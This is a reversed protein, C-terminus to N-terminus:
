WNEETVQKGTKYINILEGNLKVETTKAGFWFGNAEKYKCPIIEEGDKNVFGWGKKSRVRALGDSFNDADKYKCPIIEEGNKM